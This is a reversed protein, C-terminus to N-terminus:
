NLMTNFNSNNNTTSINNTTNSSSSITNNFSLAKIFGALENEPLYYCGAPLLISSTYLYTSLKSAEFDLSYVPDYSKTSGDSKFKGVRKRVLFRTCALEFRRYYDFSM